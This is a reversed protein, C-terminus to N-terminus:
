VPFPFLHHYLQVESIATLLRYIAWPAGSIRLYVYPKTFSSHTNPLLHFLAKEQPCPMHTDLRPNKLPRTPISSYPFYM